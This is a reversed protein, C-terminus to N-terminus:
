RPMATEISTSRSAKDLLPKVDDLNAPAYGARELYRRALVTPDPPPPLPDGKHRRQKDLKALEMMRTGDSPGFPGGVDNGVRVDPPIVPDPQRVSPSLMAEHESVMRGLEYALVAALQADNACQKVLAESVFIQSGGLQVSTNANSPSRHFVETQNAGVTQFVPHLGIQKNRDLLQQGILAVRTGAATLADGAKTPVAPPPPPPIPPVSPSPSSQVTWPLSQAMDVSCGIGPLLAIALLLSRTSM